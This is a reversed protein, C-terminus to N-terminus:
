LSKACDYDLIGTKNAANTPVWEIKINAYNGVVTLGETNGRMLGRKSYMM